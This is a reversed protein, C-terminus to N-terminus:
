KVQPWKPCFLRNENDIKTLKKSLVQNCKDFYDRKKNKHYNKFLLLCDISEMLSMYNYHLTEHKVYVNMNDFLFEILVIFFAVLDYLKSKFTRKLRTGPWHLDNLGKILTAKKKNNKQYITLFCHQNKNRQDFYFCNGDGRQQKDYQFPTFGGKYRM